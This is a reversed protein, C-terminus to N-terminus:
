EGTSAACRFGINYYSFSPERNLTRNATRVYFWDGYWSGGRLVKLSGSAPGQPNSSYYPLARYYDPDYWDHVWERVNGSMDMAGYPSAGTPYDAVRSTDGVCYEYNSGNYHQYNLRTCDPPDDGWPYMSTSSHGRAAMEWEAETPLRKGDWACFDAADYWSVWIVPYGAYTPNDYYAPRTQSSNNLPLNCAGAAVCRAYRANTVEYRDIIYSDLEVAHEPLESPDCSEAPNGEHCGMQFWGGGSWVTQGLFPDRAIGPLYVSNPWRGALAQPSNSITSLYSMEDRTKLAFYYVQRPVFGTVTMKEASGAPSPIPEGSVDTSTDWNADWGEETIPTTNYRVVYASATGTMGDDGPATWSLEITDSLTGTSASLNVVPSPPTIDSTTGSGACRFGTGAGTLWPDGAGRISVGICCCSGWCGGRVAKLSGSSPGQPNTAPSVDYYDAQYWDSVWETVNGIMDLLGYPSAGDPYSGVQTTDGVCAVCHEPVYFGINALSCDESQDGWPYMRTDTSGRAAKEWEAETPLRQGTWACYAAADYWSVYIVPYGAYVPDDYYAPRTESSSYQPPGCAGAAVCQAYEANTVEYRDIDYADLYVTHLPLQPEYCLEKSGDCGMQFEGAPILVAETTVMGAAYLRTPPLDEHTRTTLARARVQGQTLSLSPLLIALLAMLVALQFVFRNM